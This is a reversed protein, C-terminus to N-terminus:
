PWSPAAGRFEDAPDPRRVTRLVTTRYRVELRGGPGLEALRGRAQDLTGDRRSTDLALLYSRSSLQEAVEDVTHTVTTTFDARETAGFWRTDLTIDPDFEDPALGAAVRAARFVLQVPDHPHVPNWLLALVGGPKLVRALEADAEPRRFWHFAAGAVVADVTRDPLGTAEATGVSTRVRPLRRRLRTLMAESPDVAITEGALHVVAATLKGSGAGIDLLREVPSPLAWAAADAPYGPRARDYLDAQAGFEGGAPVPRRYRDSTTV